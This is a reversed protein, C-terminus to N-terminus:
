QEFCYLRAEEWCDDYSGSSWMTGRAGILAGVGRGFSSTWGGCDPSAHKGDAKTGTWVRGFRLIRKEDIDIANEVAGKTLAEFSAAVRKGDPRVYPGRHPTFREIVPRSGSSLWAVFPRESLGSRHALETCIADAAEVSLEAGRFERSTVFVLRPCTDTEECSVEPEPPSPRTDEVAADPEGVDPGDHGGNGEELADSSELSDLDPTSGNVEMTPDVHLTLLEGCGAM